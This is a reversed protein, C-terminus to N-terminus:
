KFILNFEVRRNQAKGAATKNSAIPKVIGYGESSLRDASIGNAILYDKVAAAREKSLQLNKYFWTFVLYYIYVLNNFLYPWQQCIPSLEIEQSLRTTLFNNIRVFEM